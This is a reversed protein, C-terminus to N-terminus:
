RFFAVALLLFVIESMECAAGYTDGTLGGLVKTLWFNFVGLLLM